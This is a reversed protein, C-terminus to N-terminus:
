CAQVAIEPAPTGSGRCAPSHSVRDLDGWHFSVFPHGPACKGSRRAAKTDCIARPRNGVGQCSGDTETSSRRAQMQDGFHAAKRNCSPCGPLGAAGFLGENTTRGAPCVVRRSVLFAIRRPMVKASPKAPYKQNLALRRNRAAKRVGQLTKGPPEEPPIEFRAGSFSAAPCRSLVAALITECLYIKRHPNVGHHPRLFSKYIRPRVSGSWFQGSQNLSRTSSFVIRISPQPHDSSQEGARLGSGALTWIWRAGPARPGHSCGRGRSPQESVDAPLTAASM